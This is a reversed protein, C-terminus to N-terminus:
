LMNCDLNHLEHISAHCSNSTSDDPFNVTLSKELHLQYTSLASTLMFWLIYNPYAHIILLLLRWIPTMTGSSYYISSPYAHGFGVVQAIKTPTILQDFNQLRNNNSVVNAPMSLWYCHSEYQHWTVLVIIYWSQYTYGLGAIWAIRTFTILGFSQLNNDHISYQM